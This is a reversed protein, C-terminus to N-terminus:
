PNKGALIGGPKLQSCVIWPALSRIGTLASSNPTRANCLVNSLNPVKQCSRDGRPSLPVDVLPGRIRGPEWQLGCQLMLLRATARSFTPRGTGNDPNAEPLSSADFIRYAGSLVDARM